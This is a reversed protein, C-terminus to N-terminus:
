KCYLMEHMASDTAIHTHGHILAAVIDALGPRNQQHKCHEQFKQPLNTPSLTTSELRGSQSRTQKKIQSVVGMLSPGSGGSLPKSNWHAGNVRIILHSKTICRRLAALTQMLQEKIRQPAKRKGTRAIGKWQLQCNLFPTSGANRLDWIAEPQGSGYIYVTYSRINPSKEVPSFVQNLIYTVPVRNLILFVNKQVTRMKNVKVRAEQFSEQTDPFTSISV